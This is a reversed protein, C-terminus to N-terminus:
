PAGISPTGSIVPILLQLLEYNNDIRKFIITKGANMANILVGNEYVIWYDKVKYFGILTRIDVVERADIVIADDYLDTLLRTKGSSGYIIVPINSTDKIFKKIDIM